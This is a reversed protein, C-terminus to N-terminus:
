KIFLISQILSMHIYLINFVCIYIYVYVYICIYIYIDRFGASLSPQLQQHAFSTLILPPTPPPPRVSPLKPPRVWLRTLFLSLFHMLNVSRLFLVTPKKSRYPTSLRHTEELSAPDISVM